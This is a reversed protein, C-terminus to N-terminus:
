NSKISICMVFIVVAPTVWHRLKPARVMNADGETAAAILCTRGSADPADRAGQALMMGACNVNGSLVAYQLASAGSADPRRCFRAPM